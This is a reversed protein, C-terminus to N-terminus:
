VHIWRGAKAPIVILAAPLLCFIITPTSAAVIHIHRLAIRPLLCCAASGDDQKEHIAAM